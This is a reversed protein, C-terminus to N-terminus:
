KINLAEKEYANEAKKVEWIEYGMVGILKEVIFATDSYIQKFAPIDAVGAQFNINRHAILNDRIDRLREIIGRKDGNEAYEEVKGRITDSVSRVENEINGEVPAQKNILSRLPEDFRDLIETRCSEIRMKSCAKIIRKDGLLAEVKFLSLSTKNRSSEDWIRTIGLTCERFFLSRMIAHAPTENEKNKFLKEWFVFSCVVIEFEEKAKETLNKLKKIEPSDSRM